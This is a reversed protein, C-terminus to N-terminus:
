LGCYCFIHCFLSVIVGVKCRRAKARQEEEEKVTFLAEIVGGIGGMM